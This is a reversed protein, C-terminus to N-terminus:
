GAPQTQARACSGPVHHRRPFHARNQVAGRKPAGYLVQLLTTHLGPAIRRAELHLLAPGLLEWPARVHGPFKGRVHPGPRGLQPDPQGAPARAVDAGLRRPAPSTASSLRTAPPGAWSIHWVTTTSGCVPTRRGTTSSSRRPSASASPFTTTRIERSFVRTGPPDPRHATRRATTADVGDLTTARRRGRKRTAREGPTSSMAPTAM